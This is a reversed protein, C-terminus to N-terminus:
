QKSVQIFGKGESGTMSESDIGAIARIEELIKEIM